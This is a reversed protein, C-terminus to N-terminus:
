ARAEFRREIAALALAEQNAFLRARGLHVWWEKREPAKATAIDLQEAAEAYKKM